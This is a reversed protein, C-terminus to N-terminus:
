ELIEPERGLQEACDGLLTVGYRGGDLRLGNGYDECASIEEAGGLGAGALGGAESQRHQLQESRFGVDAVRGRAMRHAAEDEHGRALERHLHLLAHAGVALVHLKAGGHDVAAHAELRLDLLQAAADVDDDRRGPAQEIVHLLLRYVQALDLDEDQVFGVAHEVHAKDVVDAAHQRQQGRLPLVQKEGRSKGVFHSFEGLPKHMVRDGHFDRPAIHRDLQDALDRVRDVLVPLALQERVQHLRAVPLLHQHEAPGLVAGVPEGLLQLVVADFGGRDVAVLALRLAHLGQLAELVALQLHEDGGVDGRPAEVDLRQRVDDVVVQRVDRFVVDVADAAGAARAFGPLGHREDRAFVARVKAVDLPEDALFDLLLDDRAEFRARAVVVRLGFRLPASPLLALVLRSLVLLALLLLLRLTEGGRM